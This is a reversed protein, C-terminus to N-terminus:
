RSSSVRPVTSFDLSHFCHSFPSLSFTSSSWLSTSSSLYLSGGGHPVQSKGKFMVGDSVVKLNDGALRYGNGIRQACCSGGSKM